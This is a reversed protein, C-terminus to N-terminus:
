EPKIRAFTVDFTERLAAQFYEGFLQDTGPDYELSYTSGPYNVDRLELFFKTKEGDKLAKARSVNIPNPNYYAAEAAGSADVKRIEIVYGGDPRLWKGVLKTYEAPIAVPKAAEPTASNSTQVFREAKKGCAALGVLACMTLVSVSCERFKEFLQGFGM